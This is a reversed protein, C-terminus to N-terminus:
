IRVGRDFSGHARGGPVFAKREVEDRETVHSTTDLTILVSGM